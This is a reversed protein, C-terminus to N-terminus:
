KTEPGYMKDLEVETYGMRKAEARDIRTKPGYMEDLDEETFGHRLKVEARSRKVLETDDVGALMEEHFWADTWRGNKDFSFGEM